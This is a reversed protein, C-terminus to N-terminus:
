AGGSGTAWDLTARLIRRIGDLDAEDRPSYLLTYTGPLAKGSLGHLEGWGREIVARADEPNLQLHMSGQPRHFHAVEGTPSEGRDVLGAAYLAPHHKEFSSQREEVDPRDALEEAFVAALRELADASADERLQRHPIPHPAIRPRAGARRPLDRVLPHESGEPLRGVDLPDGAKLRLSTVKLWGRLGWPIGGEGLAQWRRYDWLAAASGAALGALTLVTWRHRM